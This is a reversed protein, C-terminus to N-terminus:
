RSRGNTGPRGMRHADRQASRDRATSVPSGNQKGRYGDDAADNEDIGAVTREGPPTGQTLTDQDDDYDSADIQSTFRPDDHMGSAADSDRASATHMSQQQRMDQGTVGQSRDSRAQSRPASPTTSTSGGLDAREDHKRFGQSQTGQASRDSQATATPSSQTQTSSSPARASQDGADDPVARLTPKEATETGGLLQDRYEQFAARARGLADRLTDYTGESADKVQRELKEVYPELYKEWRERAEQGALHLKLRIEDRLTKLEQLGSDFTNRLNNM